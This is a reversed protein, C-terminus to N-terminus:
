GASTSTAQTCLVRVCDVARPNHKKSSHETHTRQTHAHTYVDPCIMRMLRAASLYVHTNEFNSIENSNQLLNNEAFDKYYVNFNFDNEPNKINECFIRDM